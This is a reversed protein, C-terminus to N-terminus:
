LKQGNQNRCTKKSGATSCRKNSSKKIKKCEEQIATKSCIFNMCVFKVEQVVIKTWLKSLQCHRYLFFHSNIGHSRNSHLIIM